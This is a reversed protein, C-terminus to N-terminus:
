TECASVEIVEGFTKAYALAIGRDTFSKNKAGQKWVDTSGLRRLVAVETRGNKKPNVIARTTNM